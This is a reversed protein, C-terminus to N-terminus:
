FSRAAGCNGGLICRLQSTQAAERVQGVHRRAKLRRGCTGGNTIAAGRQAELVSKTISAAMLAELWRRAYDVGLGTDKASDTM